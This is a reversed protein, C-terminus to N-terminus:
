LEEPLEGAMRKLVDPFNAVRLGEELTILGDRIYQFLRKSIIKPPFHLIM